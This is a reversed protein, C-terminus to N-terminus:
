HYAQRKYVDLHTYSVAGAIPIEVGDFISKDTIALIGSSSKPEPFIERPIGMTDLLEQDWNLEQVNFSDRICM